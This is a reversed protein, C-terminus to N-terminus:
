KKELKIYDLGFMNGAAASPNPALVKVEFRHEGAELEFRGANLEGSTVVEDPHYFDFPGGPLSKGDL